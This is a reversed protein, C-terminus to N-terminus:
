ESVGWVSIKLSSEVQDTANLDMGYVDVLLESQEINAIFNLMNKFDATGDVGIELVHGFEGDQSIFQNHINKITVRNEEARESISDLFNSWSARNFLIDSIHIMQADIYSSADDYEMIAVELSNIDKELEKVFFMRDGNVTLRNLENELNTLRSQTDLLASKSADYSQQTKPIVVEVALYGIVFIPLLIILYTETKKKNEFFRDLKELMEIIYNM